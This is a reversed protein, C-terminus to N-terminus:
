KRSREDEPLRPITDRIMRTVKVLFHELKKLDAEERAFRVMDATTLFDALQGRCEEPLPSRPAAMQTLFEPTTCRSAPLDFRSELYNRLIDNLRTFGTKPLVDGSAIQEQLAELAAIAADWCMEPAIRCRRKWVKYMLLAAVALLVAGGIYIYKHRLFHTFITGIGSSPIEMEPALPLAMGAKEAAPIRSTFEPIIVSFKGNEGGIGRGSLTLEVRGEGINGSILPRIVASFHWVSKNWKWRTRKWDANGTSVSGKGCELVASRISSHEPIVASFEVRVDEGQPVDDAPVLTAVEPIEPKGASFFSYGIGSGTVALALLVALILAGVGIKLASKM